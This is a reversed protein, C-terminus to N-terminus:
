RGARPAPSPAVSPALYAAFHQRQADSADARVALQWTPKEDKRAFELGFWDLAPQYDLEDTSRVTKQLLPALDQGAVESIAGLFEDHTYGKAGSWRAYALRMADDFSKRGDTARRIAADVVFGVCPGKEYYSVTSKAAGGVGSMGQDWVQLSAQELTQVARGPTQQLARVHGSMLQLWEDRSAVGGRALALEAFYSTLGEAIWLSATTPPHEYDFPGLEVPRLRKVNIAHFFEHSVFSLWHVNPSSGPTTTLLTSFSHELGGGGGQRFTDLFVYHDFPLKGLFRGHEEVVKTLLGAAKESDFAGHPGWDVLRLQAGGAAFSQARLSGALIPSDALEDYNAAVFHHPRGDAAAHLATASDPWTAPLELQVEHPRATGGVLTVFTAPGNWIAGREDVTDGTVSRGTCRLTYRVTVADGHAAIRWRNPQPQEVALAKGDADTAAFDALQRVYNEVHYFGPSWVALFLEVHDKGDTPVRAEVATTHEGPDPVRLTYALPAQAISAQAALPALLAWLLARVHLVRVHRSTRM